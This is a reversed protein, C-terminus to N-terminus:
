LVWIYDEDAEHTLFAQDIIFSSNMTTFGVIDLLSSNFRNTQYAADLVYSNPFLHLLQLSDNHFFLVRKLREHDNLVYHFQFEEGLKSIMAQVASLEHNMAKKMESYVNEIDRLTLLANPFQNQLSLLTDKTPIRSARNNQIQYLIEPRSKRANRRHIPHATPL